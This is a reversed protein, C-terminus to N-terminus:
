PLVMHLKDANTERFTRWGELLSGGVVGGDDGVAGGGVLKLGLYFVIAGGLLLAGGQILDSWVVAKLGGYITYTAAIIGVAWIGAITAWFVADEQAMGFRDVLMQPFGFVGNLGQASSYLVTALLAVVYLVMLYTAMITRAAGDYRYELFEPMTYIGVRL